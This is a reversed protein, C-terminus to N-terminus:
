FATVGEVGDGVGGGERIFRVVLTGHVAPMRVYCCVFLFVIGDTLTLDNMKM